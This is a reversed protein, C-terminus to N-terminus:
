AAGQLYESVDMVYHAFSDANKRMEGPQCYGVKALAEKTEKNKELSTRARSEISVDDPALPETTQSAASYKLVKRQFEQFISEDPFYQHDVTGAFKHTAEHILTLMQMRMLTAARFDELRLHIEGQLTATIVPDSPISDLKRKLLESAEAFVYGHFDLAGRGLIKNFANTVSVLACMALPMDSIDAIAITPQNLQLSTRSLRGIIEMLGNKYLGAEEASPHLPMGFYLHLAQRIPRSIREVPKSAEHCPRGLAATMRVQAGKLALPLRTRVDNKFGAPMTGFSVELKQTGVVIIEPDGM